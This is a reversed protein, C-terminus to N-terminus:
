ENFTDPLDNELLVIAEGKVITHMHAIADQLNKAVYYQNEPYNAEKLGDQLPITQKEGVLIVYDCKEAAYRGFEKNLEYEKEGLEIMGPTVLVRFGDMESLVDLAMKSGRPNSNFADDIITIGGAQKKIEMRHPVAAVQKIARAIKELPIGMESGVAVAALINYINHKGLLKTNMVATRGDSTEVTFTSGGSHFSIDKARYDLGEADIGYYVKRCTNKPTYSMINEDDKNLFGVGDEPLTEIIEYKTKKINDLTKFTELHQPGIATLISYKQNVLECIEQIDNPQKAGMEAIFIDHFPRLQERITRTVGLKTNYSEPTMLVNYQSALVTNLIHKVSTKGYSGTIGVVDLNSMGQVIRTADNFYGQNISKEIPLNISNAVLTVMYIFFNVAILVLGSWFLGTAKYLIFDLVVVILSVVTVTTILRKVRPTVVLKKKEVEKGRALFLILYYLVLLIISVWQWGFALPILWILAFLDRFAFVKGKNRSMWLLFRENRYSNLQLMHITKKVKWGTYIGWIVVLVALGIGIM